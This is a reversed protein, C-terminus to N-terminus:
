CGNILEECCDCVRETAGPRAAGLAAAAMAILRKPSVLLGRLLTTLADPDLGSQDLLIAGGCESLSRANETQHDDIAQPLPILISPRGAIALESVTLAGARCLVLDSWNYARAMDDIFASVRVGNNLLSGYAECVAEYHAKGAQHWVAIKAGNKSEIIAQVARPVVDNIPRAGLSGGVVLLHLTGQGDYNYLRGSGVVMFERRVPNGVVLADVREKFAGPFGALLKKAFPALMRNTTGAVSNQEHILLSKGLLWAAVGGPGAAYGGMGVVCQPSCRWILMLAQIAAMSLSLLGLFKWLPSKGRIGRVTLFHLTFGAAPVVSAELGRSTGMGEVRYGRDRLEIAVALAPYVHGGTGGAMMLVLPKDSVSM